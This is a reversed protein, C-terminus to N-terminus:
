SQKWPLEEAKWGNMKGRKKNEDLDGEFGGSINFCNSYGLTLAFRAAADSRAGSRCLFLIKAEKAQTGFIKNLTETLDEAFNPNEKMSLTLKWPALIMRGDFNTPDVTGVFSFEEFTRVDVLVSNKDKQLLAFSDAPSIQTVSM